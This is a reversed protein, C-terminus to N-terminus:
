TVELWQGLQESAQLDAGNDKEYSPAQHNGSIDGSTSQVRIICDIAVKQNAFNALSIGWVCVHGPRMQFPRVNQHFAIVTDPRSDSAKKALYPFAFEKYRMLRARRRDSRTTPHLPMVQNAKAQFINQRESQKDCLTADGTDYLVCWTAILGDPVNNTTAITQAMRWNIRMRSIQFIEQEQPNWLFGLPQCNTSGASPTISVQNNDALHFRDSRAIAKLRQRAIRGARLARIRKGAGRRIRMRYAM